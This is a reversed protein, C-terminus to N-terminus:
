PKHIHREGKRRGLESSFANKPHNNGLSYTNLIWGRPQQKSAQGKSWCWDLVCRKTYSSAMHHLVLEGELFGEQTQTEPDWQLLDRPSVAPTHTMSRWANIFHSSPPPQATSGARGARHLLLQPTYPSVLFKDCSVCLNKLPTQLSYNIGCHNVRVVSLTIGCPEAVEASITFHKEVNFPIM